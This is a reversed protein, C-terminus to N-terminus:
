QLLLSIKCLVGAWSSPIIPLDETASIFKNKMNCTGKVAYVIKHPQAKKSPSDM